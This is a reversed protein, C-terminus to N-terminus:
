RKTHCLRKAEFKLMNGYFAGVRAKGLGLRQMVVLRNFSLTCGM